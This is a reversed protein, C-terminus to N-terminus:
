IGRVIRMIEKLPSYFVDFIVWIVNATLLFSVIRHYYFGYSNNYSAYACVGIIGMIYLFKLLNLLTQRVCVREIKTMVDKTLPM